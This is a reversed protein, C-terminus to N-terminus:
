LAERRERAYVLVVDFVELEGERHRDAARRRVLIQLCGREGLVAEEVDDVLPTHEVLDIRARALRAADDPAHIGPLFFQRQGIAAGRQPAVEDDGGGVRWGGG